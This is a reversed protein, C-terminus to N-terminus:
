LSNIRPKYISLALLLATLHIWGSPGPVPVSKSGGGVAALSTGFGAKWVDYDLITVMGDYDGDAGEGPEVHQGLSNRWLTYDAADIAGDDNFDGAAMDDLFGLFSIGRLDAILMGGDVRLVSVPRLMGTILSAQEGTSSDVMRLDNNVWRTIVINGDVTTNNGYYFDFGNASAHNGLTTM